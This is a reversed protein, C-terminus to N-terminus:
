CNVHFPVFESLCLEFSNKIETYPVTSFHDYLDRQKNGNNKIIQEGRVCDECYIHGCNTLSFRKGGGPRVFCNNCHVWDAMRKM